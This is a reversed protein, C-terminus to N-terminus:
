PAAVPISHRAIPTSSEPALPLSVAIRAGTPNDVFRVSGGHARVIDRVVALGIGTGAVRPRDPEELRTYSDFVRERHAPPIGRGQDIVEVVGESTTALVRVVVTQGRPGYKVANDLLNLLVQRLAGPDVDVAPEHVVEMEIRADKGSAVLAFFEVADRAESALNRRERRITGRAEQSRAFRMVGEVLTALRAVERQIIGAFHRRETSDRDRGLALMEAYMSIHALPTRLEHSVNAVFRNRLRVVERARRRQLMAMVALAASLALLAFLAPLYLPSPRGIRLAAALAPGAQATVRLRGLYQPLSDLGAAATDIPAHRWLTTGDPSLVAVRMHASTYPPKVVSSSVLSHRRLVSDVVKGLAAPALEVAYTVSRRSGDRRVYAAFLRMRGAITDALVRHPDAMDGSAAALRAAVGGTDAARARASLFRGSPLELRFASRVDGCIFCPDMQPMTSLDPPQLLVAPDILDASWDRQGRMAPIMPAALASGVQGHLVTSVMRTLEVGALRSYDYLVRREIDRRSRENELTYALVAAVLIFPVFLAATM